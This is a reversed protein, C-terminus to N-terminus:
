TVVSQITPSSAPRALDGLDRRPVYLWQGTADYKASHSLLAVTGRRIKNGGFSCAHHTLLNGM